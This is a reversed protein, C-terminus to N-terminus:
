AIVNATVSFTFSADGATGTDAVDWRVRYKGGIIARAAAAGLAAGNEFETLAADHIIKAFYRKAGGNGLIQTFHMVDVWNTGDVSTQVFVDLTDGSITAAATVDLECFLTKFEGLGEVANGTGTETRAGSALLVVGQRSAPSVHHLAESM